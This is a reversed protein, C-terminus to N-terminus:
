TKPLYSLCLFFQTHSAFPLRVPSLPSCALYPPYPLTHPLSFSSLQPPPHPIRHLLLLPPPRAEIICEYYRIINSHHFQSLLKVENIAGEREKDSLDTIRVRKVVVELGDELRRGLLAEGFAGHGIARVIKYRIAVQGESM